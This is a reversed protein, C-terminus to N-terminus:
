RRRLTITFFAACARPFLRSLGLDFAFFSRYISLPIPLRHSIGGTAFYALATFPRFPQSEFEYTEQVDDRWAPRTFILWPLCENASFLPGRVEALEPEQISFDVPEHHLFKYIITSLVSFYPETAIVLGSPKLKLAAKSLFEIPRKLHHLVNTLTIVDLSQDPIAKFKDLEHCDFTYNLYNLDLVDSTRVSPYFETLPSVGSGIELIDLRSVDGLNRFQDRYLQEYWYLLNRNGALRARNRLTQERDKAYADAITDAAKM